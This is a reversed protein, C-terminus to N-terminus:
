VARKVDISLSCHGLRCELIRMEPCHRLCVINSSSTATFRWIQRTVAKDLIEISFEGEHELKGLKGGLTEKLVGAPVTEHLVQV